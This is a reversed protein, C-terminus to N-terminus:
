AHGHSREMHRERWQGGLRLAGIVLMLMYLWGLERAIATGHRTFLSGDMVSAMARLPKTMMMTGTAVEDDPPMAAMGDYGVFGADILAFVVVVVASVLLTQVLLDLVLPTRWSPRMAHAFPVLFFLGFTLLQSLAYIGTDLVYVIIIFGFGAAMVAALAVFGHHFRLAVAGLGAALRSRWRRAGAPRPVAPEASLSPPTAAQLPAPQDPLSFWPTLRRLALGAPPALLVIAWQVARGHLSLRRAADTTFPLRDFFGDTALLSALLAALVAWSWWAAAPAGRGTAAAGGIVGMLGISLAALLDSAIGLAQIAGPAGGAPTSALHLLALLPLTAAYTALFDGCRLSRLYASRVEPAPHSRHLWRRGTPRVGFPLGARLPAVAVMRSAAFFDMCFEFNTLIRALVLRTGLATAIALVATLVVAMWYTTAYQGVQFTAVVFFALFGSAAPLARDAARGYLLDYLTAHGVEHLTTFIARPALIGFPQDPRQAWATFARVTAPDLLIGTPVIRAAPQPWAFLRLRHLPPALPGLVRRVLGDTAPDLPTGQAVAPAGRILLLILLLQTALLALTLASAGWGQSYLPSAHRGFLLTHVMPGAARVACNTRIFFLTLSGAWVVTYALISFILGYGALVYCRGLILAQRALASTDQDPM